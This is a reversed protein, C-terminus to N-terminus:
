TYQLVLKVKSFDQKKLDDKHIYFYLIGDDIWNMNAQYVSDIQLLLFWDEENFTNPQEYKKITTMPDEQIWRPHGLLHTYGNMWEQMLEYNEEDEEKAFSLTGVDPLSCRSVFYQYVEKFPSSQNKRQKLEKQDKIYILKHSEGDSYSPLYETDYFVYLIGEQPLLHLQDHPAVQQFNIQGLFTLPQQNKKPWSFDAPLDPYGGLKSLGSKKYAKKNHSILQIAEKFQPKLKTSLFHLDYKKLLKECSTNAKGPISFPPKPYIHEKRRRLDEETYLFYEKIAKYEQHSIEELSFIDGNEKYHYLLIADHTKDHLAAYSKGLVKKHEIFFCAIEQNDKTTLLIEKQGIKLM